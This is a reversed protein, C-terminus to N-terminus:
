QTRARCVARRGETQKIVAFEPTGQPQGDFLDVVAAVADIQFNQNPDFQLKM